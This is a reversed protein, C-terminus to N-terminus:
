AGEPLFVHSHIGHLIKRYRPDQTFASEKYSCFLSFNHQRSLENWLEELQLATEGHGREVLLWVMEGFLRVPRGGAAAQSMLQNFQRHFREQDIGTRADFFTPLVQEANLPIYRYESLLAATNLGAASLHEDLQRLHAPTVVGVCTENRDLGERVYRGVATVFAADSRFVQLIHAATSM